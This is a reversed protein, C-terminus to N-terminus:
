VHDFFSRTRESEPKQRLVKDADWMLVPIYPDFEDFMAFTDYSKAFKKSFIHFGFGASKPKPAMPNALVEIAEGDYERWFMFRSFKTHLILDNAIRRVIVDVQGSHQTIFHMNLHYKRSQTLKRVFHEPMNQWERANLKTHAEDFYLEGNRITYLEKFDKWFYVKGMKENGFTVKKWFKIIQGLLSKQRYLYFETFDIKWNVYCDIGDNIKKWVDLTASYSKGVGLKGTHLTIM